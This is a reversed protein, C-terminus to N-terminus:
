QYLQYDNLWNDEMMRMQQQQSKTKDKYGCLHLAGHFIVRHLEQDFSCKFKQANDAVRDVSIYIEGEITNSDEALPFTIIDTYTDHNLFQINMQLLQEDSVFVYQLNCKKNTASFINKAIFAKLEKKHLLPCKVNQQAFKIAM